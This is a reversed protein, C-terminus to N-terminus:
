RATLIVCSFNSFTITRLLLVQQRTGVWHSQAFFDKANFDFQSYLLLAHRPFHFRSSRTLEPWNNKSTQFNLCSYPNRSTVESRHNGVNLNCILVRFVAVLKPQLQCLMNITYSNLTFITLFDFSKLVTQLPAHIIRPM